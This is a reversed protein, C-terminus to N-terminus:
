LGSLGGGKYKRHGGKKGTGKNRVRYKRKSGTNEKVPNDGTAMELEAEAMEPKDMPAPPPPPPPMKIDPMAPSPNLLGGMTM